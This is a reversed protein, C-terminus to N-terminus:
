LRVSSFLLNSQHAYQGIPKVWSGIDEGRSVQKLVIQSAKVINADLVVPMQCFDLFVGPM